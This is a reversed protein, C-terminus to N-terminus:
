PRNRAEISGHGPVGYLRELVKARYDFIEELAPRVFGGHVARGSPGVLWRPLAYRVRDLIRTKHGESEFRHLHHWYAYPGIVQEDVFRHPPEYTSILSRWSVPVGKIRIRYDILRGEAMEVPSPCLIEFGLWPPTILSLNEPREFFPFVRQLPRPVWQERALEHIRM